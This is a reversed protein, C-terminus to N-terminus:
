RTPVDNVAIADVAILLGERELAGVGVITRAPMANRPFNSAMVSRLVDLHEPRYDKVYITLRVVDALSANAAEVAIKLREFARDAQARLDGPGVVANRNPDWATQASVYVTQGGNVAVTHTFDAPPSGLWTPNLFTRTVGVPRAPAPTLSACGAALVVVVILAVAARLM